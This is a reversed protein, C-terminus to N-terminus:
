LRDTMTAWINLLYFLVDNDPLLFDYKLPWLTVADRATVASVTVIILCSDSLSTYNSLLMFDIQIVWYVGFM